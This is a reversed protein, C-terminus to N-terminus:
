LGPCDPRSHFPHSSCQPQGRHCFRGSGILDNSIWICLSLLPLSAMLFAAFARVSLCLGLLLPEGAAPVSSVPVRDKSLCQHLFRLRPLAPLPSLGDRIIERVPEFNRNSKKGKKSEKSGKSEKSEKTEKIEKTESSTKTETQGASASASASGSASAASAVDSPPVSLARHFVPAPAAMVANTQAATEAMVQRVAATSDILAYLAATVPDTPKPFGATPSVPSPAAADTKREDKTETETQSQQVGLVREGCDPCVAIMAPHSNPQFEISVPCSEICLPAALKPVCLVSFSATASTTTTTTTTTSPPLPMQDDSPQSAPALVAVSVGADCAVAETEAPAKLEKYEDLGLRQSAQALKMRLRAQGSVPGYVVFPSVVPPCPDPSSRQQFVASDIRAIHERYHAPFAARTVFVPTPKDRVPATSPAWGSPWRPVNIDPPLCLPCSTLSLPCVALHSGVDTHLLMAGCGAICARKEAPCITLHDNVLEIQVSVGCACKTYERKTSNPTWSPKIQDAKSERDTAIAKTAVAPALTPPLAPSSAPSSAIQSPASHAATPPATRAPEAQALWPRKRESPESFVREPPVAEAAGEPHQLEHPDSVLVHRQPQAAGASGATRDAVTAPEWDYAAKSGSRRNRVLLATGIAVFLALLIQWLMKAATCFLDVSRCM